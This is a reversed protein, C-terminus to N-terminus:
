FRGQASLALIAYGMNDASVLYERDPPLAFSFDGPCPVCFLYAYPEGDRLLTLAKEAHLLALYDELGAGLVHLAAGHPKGVFRLHINECVPGRAEQNPAQYFFGFRWLHEAVWKGTENRRLPDKEGMSLPPTLALDVAYGTQHDSEGGAPVAAAARSFAEALPYVLCFREFAERRAAEQQAFSLAGQTLTVGDALSHELHMTCLAYIADEWLLVNERAPLYSGVMARVSRTNPPPFDEPLPYQADVWLLTGQLLQARPIWVTEGTLVPAGRQLAWGDRASLPKENEMAGPARLCLMLILGAAAALFAACALFLSPFLRRRAPVHM